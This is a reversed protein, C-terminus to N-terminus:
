FSIINFITIMNYFRIQIDELVFVNVLDIMDYFVFVNILDVINCLVFMFNNIDDADEDESDSYLYCDYECVIPDPM